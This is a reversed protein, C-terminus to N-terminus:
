NLKVADGKALGVLSRSIFLHTNLAHMAMLYLWEINRYHEATVDLQYM